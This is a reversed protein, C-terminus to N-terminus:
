MLWPENLSFAYAKPATRVKERHALKRNMDDEQYGMFAPGSKRVYTEDPTAYQASAEHVATIHRTDPHRLHAFRERLPPSIILIHDRKQHGQTYM